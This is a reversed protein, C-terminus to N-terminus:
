YNGRLAITDYFTETKLTKDRTDQVSLIIKIASGKPTTIQSFLLSNVQIHTPNLNVPSGNNVTSDLLQLDTGVVKFEITKTAGASDTTNLKLDSNAFTNITTSKRIERSIREVINASQIFDSKVSTEAFAKTMTIMSNIIVVSMVTFIAVYLIIEVLSIGKNKQLKTNM